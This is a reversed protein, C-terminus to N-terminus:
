VITLSWRVLWSIPSALRTRSPSRSPNTRAQSFECAALPAPRLAHAVLELRVARGVQVRQDGVAKTPRRAEVDGPVLRAGADIRRQAGRQARVRERQVDRLVDLADIEAVVRRGEVLGLQEGRLSVACPLGPQQGVARCLAVVRQAQGDGRQARLHHHLAVRVGRHDVSEHERAAAGREDRGLVVVLEAHRVPHGGVVELRDERRRGIRERREDDRGGVVAQASVDGAAAAVGPGGLVLVPKGPHRRAIWRAAVVAPNLFEEDAITFGLARIGAAYQPPPLGTGNTFVLVRRGGARVREVTEIAGAIPHAGGPGSPDGAHLLTGDVDFVVADIDALLSM